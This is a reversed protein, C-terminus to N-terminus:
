SKTLKGLISALLLASVHLRLRALVEFLVAPNENVTDMLVSFRSGRVAALLDGTDRFSIRGTRTDISVVVVEDACLRVHLACSGDVPTRTLPATISCHHQRVRSLWRCMEQAGSRLGSRAGSSSCKSGALFPAHTRMSRRACCGELILTTRTSGRPEAVM